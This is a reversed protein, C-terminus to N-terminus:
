FGHPLIKFGRICFPAHINCTITQKCPSMVPTSVLKHTAFPPSCFVCISAPNCARVLFLFPCRTKQTTGARSILSLRHLMSTESSRRRSPSRGTSRSNFDVVSLSQIWTLGAALQVTLSKFMSKSCSDTFSEPGCRPRSEFESVSLSESKHVGAPPGDTGRGARGTLCSGRGGLAGPRPPPGGPGTLQLVTMTAAATTAGRQAARGRGPGQTM